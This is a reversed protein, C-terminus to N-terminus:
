LRQNRAWKPSSEYIGPNRSNRAVQLVKGVFTLHRQSPNMKWPFEESDDPIEPIGSDVPGPSSEYIGPNRSNRAVQLVKGVFTLHRQSPNMKWPFEESDDPIEPIGSDVPGPSSEYIGPNRSNRAVQLVKGVFTLHRQSPNMKWPFEESDDPIEPIGSDVPGPSSEYIGPNRSNRAVQLVKGVFTLHRQSPNMKWPFEESDDPIEPIGSDV